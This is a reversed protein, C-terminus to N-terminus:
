LSEWSVEEQSQKRDSEFIVTQLSKQENSYKSYKQSATPPNHKKSVSITRLLIDFTILSLWLPCIFARQFKGKFPSFSLFLIKWSPVLCSLHLFDFLIMDFCMFHNWFGFSLLHSCVTHHRKQQSVDSHSHCDSDSISLLSVERVRWPLATPQKLATTTSLPTPRSSFTCLDRLPSFGPPFRLVVFHGWCLLALHPAM